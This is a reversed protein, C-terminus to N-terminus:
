FGVEMSTQLESYTAYILLLNLWSLKNPVTLWCYCGCLVGTCFQLFRVNPLERRQCCLRWVPQRITLVSAAKSIATNSLPTVFVQTTNWFLMQLMIKFGKSASKVTQKWHPNRCKPIFLQIPWFTELEKKHGWKGVKVYKIEVNRGYMM